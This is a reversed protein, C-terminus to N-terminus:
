LIWAYGIKLFFTRNTQTLDVDQLGLQDDTYGAFLVTRANVQYSFLLQTFLTQVEPEVPFPYLDPNRELDLYQFIGRVFTRVNFNYVLRLQSLNAQFLRGSEVDLRQLLHDFELNIHRGIKAELIPNLLLEDAPQNNTFDVSDGGTSFLEFKLAGGPQFETYFFFSDLDEYFVGQNQLKARGVGLQFFSQLPGRMDVIVNIDEDTLEGDHTETREGTTGIRWQNWWDEENGWFTRILTGELTRMDVRPLFGSDMRVRPDRDQYELNWYWHRSRHDYDLLFSNGAFSGEPQGFEEAVENPYLTDTRLYQFEVTDKAGLRVLGDIGGVRNHYDTGERGAYLVGITSTALVDRRYRFVGSTNSEELLTSASGQNSPFLLPTVTDGAAFAGIANKGVKGTIKGGWDPAVVTRTYVVNTPTSFFDIGELFFPRKEEFFLAFRENIGLQAADAEVQSFDPNVTGTLTLNPTLGWRVTLGVEAEEETPELSGDPFEELEETRIGVVTPNIELNKGPSLNEFGEAKDFQCIICARNQDRGYNSIRHRSSRPWSRGFEVGWTQSELTRQFRLQNVPFAIEVVWGQADISGKSTWIMDWAFDEIGDVESFIADAQVGLPNVRFQFARREDNFTDLQVTIHDDQVFTNIEDRRMLHARIREPDPDFCKFGVYINRDDFTLYAFTEVPPAVNNGPFWELDVAIEVADQWAPEDLLGDIKIESTARTVQHTLRERFPSKEEAPTEAEDQAAVVPALFLCVLLFRVIWKAM